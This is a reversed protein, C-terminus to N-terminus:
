WGRPALAAFTRPLAHGIQFFPKSFLTKRLRVWVVVVSDGNIAVFGITDRNGVGSHQPLEAPDLRGLTKVAACRVSWDDHSTAVVLFTRSGNDLLKKFYFSLLIYVNFFLRQRRHDDGVIFWIFPADRRQHVESFIIKIHFREEEESLFSCRTASEAKIGKQQHNRNGNKPKAQRPQQM